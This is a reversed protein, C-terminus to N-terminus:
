ECPGAHGLGSAETRAGCLLRGPRVLGAERGAEPCEDGFRGQSLGRAGALRRRGVLDAPVPESHHPPPTQLSLM